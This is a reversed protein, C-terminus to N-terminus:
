APWNSPTSIMMGERPFKEYFEKRHRERIEAVRPGYEEVWADLASKLVYPDNGVPEGSHVWRWGTLLTGEVEYRLGEVQNWVTFVWSKGPGNGKPILGRVVFRCPGMTQTPLSWLYDRIEKAQKRRLKEEPTDMM